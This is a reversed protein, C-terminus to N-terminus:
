RTSPARSWERAGRWVENGTSEAGTGATGAMLAGLGPRRRRDPDAIRRARAALLGVLGLGVLRVADSGLGEDERTVALVQGGGAADEPAAVQPGEAFPHPVLDRPAVLPALLPADPLAIGETGSRLRASIGGGTPPAAAVGSVPEGPGGSAASGSPAPGALLAVGEAWPGPRPAGSGGPRVARVRYRHDGPPVGVDTHALQDPPATLLPEFGGGALARQLEYGSVDPVGAAPWSLSVADSRGPVPAVHLGIPPAPLDLRVDNGTWETPSSAGSLLVRGEVRAPGNPLGGLDLYGSWRSGATMAEPGALETVRSQGASVIRAQASQAQGVGRVEVVVRPASVAAGNAPEVVAVQTLVQAGAPVSALAVLACAATVVRAVCRRRAPCAVGAGDRVGQAGRRAM